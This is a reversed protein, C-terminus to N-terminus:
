KCLTSRPTLLLLLQEASLLEVGGIEPENEISSIELYHLIAIRLQSFLTFPANLIVKLLYTSAVLLIYGAFDGVEHDRMAITQLGVGLKGFFVASDM